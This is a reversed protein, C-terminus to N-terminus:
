YYTQIMEYIDNNIFNKIENDLSPCYFSGILFRGDEHDGLVGIFRGLPDKLVHDVRFCGNNKIIIGAGVANTGYETFYIQSNNFIKSWKKM